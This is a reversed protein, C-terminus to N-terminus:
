EMLSGSDLSYKDASLLGKSYRTCGREEVSLSVSTWFSPLVQANDCPLCTNSSLLGPSRLSIGTGLSPLNGCLSASM